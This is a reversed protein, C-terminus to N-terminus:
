RAQLLPPLSPCISSPTRRQQFANGQGVALLVSDLDALLASRIAHGISEVGGPISAGLQVPALSLGTQACATLACLGAFRYWAEEGVAIPRVTPNCVGPPATLSSAQYRNAPNHARVTQAFVPRDSAGIFSPALMGPPVSDIPYAMRDANNASGSETKITTSWPFAKLLARMLFHIM